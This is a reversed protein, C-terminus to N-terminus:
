GCDEVLKKSLNETVNEEETIETVDIDVTKDEKKSVSLTPEETEIPSVDSTKKVNSHNQITPKLNELSLEFESKVENEETTEEKTTQPIVNEHNDNSIEPKKSKIRNLIVEPTIKFRITIYATLLFFLIIGLGTKGIFLQLYENVEYGITGSLINSSTEFFGFTISIWLMSLLGWNYSSIVKSLKTRFMWFLGSIFLLYPIIFAGIGVGKYIFLNSLIAGVKGLLNEGKANSNTFENIISLDQQWHFFFSIFAVFLFLSFLILFSGIVTQLQRNKFFAVVSNTGSHNKSTANKTKRAM